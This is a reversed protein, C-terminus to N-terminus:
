KEVAHKAETLQDSHHYGSQRQELKLKEVQSQLKSVHDELQKRMQTHSEKAAAMAVVKERVKREMDAHRFLVM